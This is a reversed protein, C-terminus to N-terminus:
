LSSALVETPQFQAATFSSHYWETSGCLSLWCGRATPSFFKTRHGLFQKSTCEGGRPRGQFESEHDRQGTQCLLRRDRLSSGQGRDKDAEQFHLHQDDQEYPFRLPRWGGPPDDQQGVGPDCVRLGAAGFQTARPTDASHRSFLSCPSCCLAASYTEKRSLNGNFGSM